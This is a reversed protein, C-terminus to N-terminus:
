TTLPLLTFPVFGHHCGHRYVAATIYPLSTNERWINKYVPRYGDLQTGLKCVAFEEFRVKAAEYNQPSSLENM